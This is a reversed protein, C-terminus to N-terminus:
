VPTMKDAHQALESFLGMPLDFSANPAQQVDLLTEWNDPRIRVTSSGNSKVDFLDSHSPGGNMNILICFEATNRTQYGSQAVVELPHAFRTLAYGFVAGASLGIFDRRHIGNDHVQGCECKYKM